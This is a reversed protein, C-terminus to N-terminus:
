YFPVNPLRISCQRARRKASRPLDREMKPAMALRWHHRLSRLPLQLARATRVRVATARNMRQHLEAVLVAVRDRSMNIAPGATTPRIWIPTPAKTCRVPPCFRRIPSAVRAPAVIAMPRPH